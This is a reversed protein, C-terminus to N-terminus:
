TTRGNGTSNYGIDFTNGNSITVAGGSQNFVGVGNYGVTVSPPVRLAKAISYTGNGTANDGLTM